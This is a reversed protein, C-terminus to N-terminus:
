CCSPSCFENWLVIFNIDGHYLDRRESRCRSGGSSRSIPTAMMRAADFLDQPIQAFFKLIYVTMAIHTAV